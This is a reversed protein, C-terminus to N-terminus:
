PVRDEQADYRGGARVRKFPVSRFVTQIAKLLAFSSSAHQQGAKGNEGSAPMGGALIIALDEAMEPRDLLLPAFSKQDIEYVVVHSMARLTSMEGIGALLGSEGFFDGPALRGIEELRADDERQRVIVGTRVIMLSPLMEGQRAIIEGKRYTRESATAALAEQEDKTLASFIPIARILEIPTVRPLHATEETPLATMSISSSPMALLLGTSKAHRYVLDLIERGRKSFTPRVM